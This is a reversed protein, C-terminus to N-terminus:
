RRVLKYKCDICKKTPTDEPCDEYCLFTTGCKPCLHGHEEPLDDLWADDEDWDPCDIEAHLEENTM